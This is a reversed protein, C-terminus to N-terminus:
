PPCPYGKARKLGTKPWFDRKYCPNELYGKKTVSFVGKDSYLGKGSSIDGKKRTVESGKQGKGTTGFTRAVRCKSFFSLWFPERLSYNQFDARKQSPSGNKEEYDHKPFFFARGRFLSPEGIFPPM